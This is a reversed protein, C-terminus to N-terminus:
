KFAHFCGWHGQNWSMSVTSFGAELLWERQDDFADPRDYRNYHDMLWEWDEKSRGSGLSFNEWEALLAEHEDSQKDVFLDACAFVGGSGIASQLTRFLGKKDESELHHLSFGALVLDYASGQLDLDQFM